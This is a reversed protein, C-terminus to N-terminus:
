ESEILVKVKPPTLGWLEWPEAGRPGYNDVFNYGHLWSPYVTSRVTDGGNEPTTISSPPVFSM